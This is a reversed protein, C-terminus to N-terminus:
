TSLSLEDPRQRISPQGYAPLLLVEYEATLVDGQDLVIDPEGFTVNPIEWSTYTKPSGDPTKTYVDAWAPSPLDPMPRDTIYVTRLTGKQENWSDAETFLDPLDLIFFGTTSVRGGVGTAILALRHLRM